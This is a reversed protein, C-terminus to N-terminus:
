PKGKGKESETEPPQDSQSSRFSLFIARFMMYLMGAAMAGLIAIPLIESFSM